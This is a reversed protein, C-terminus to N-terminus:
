TGSRYVRRDALSDGREQSFYCGMWFTAQAVTLCGPKKTFRHLGADQRGVSDEVAVIASRGFDQADQMGSLVDIRDKSLSKLLSPSENISLDM